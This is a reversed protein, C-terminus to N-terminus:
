QKTPVRGLTLNDIEARQNAPPLARDPDRGTESPGFTSRVTRITSGHLAVRNRSRGRGSRRHILLQQHPLGM